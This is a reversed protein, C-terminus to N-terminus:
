SWSFNDPRRSSQSLWNPSFGIDQDADSVLVWAPVILHPTLPWWGNKMGTMSYSTKRKWHSCSAWQSTGLSSKTFNESLCRSQSWNWGILKWDLIQDMRV